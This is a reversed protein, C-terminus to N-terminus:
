LITVVDESLGESRAKTLMEPKHPGLTEKYKCAFAIKWEKARRGDNFPNAQNLSDLLTKVM